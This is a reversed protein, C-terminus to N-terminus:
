TMTELTIDICQYARQPFHAERVKFSFSSTILCIDLNFGPVSPSTRENDHYSTSPVFYLPLVIIYDLILQTNSNLRHLGNGGPIRELGEWDM